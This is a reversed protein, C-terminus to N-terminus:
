GVLRPFAAGQKSFALRRGRDWLRVLNQYELILIRGGNIWPLFENMLVVIIVVIGLISGTMGVVVDVPGEVDDGIGLVGTVVIGDYRPRVENEFVQVM